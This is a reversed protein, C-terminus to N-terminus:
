IILLGLTAPATRSVGVKKTSKPYKEHMKWNSVQYKGMKFMKYRGTVQWTCEWVYIITHRANIRLLKDKVNQGPSIKQLIHGLYKKYLRYM